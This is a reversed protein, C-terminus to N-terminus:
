CNYCVLDHLSALEHLARILPQRCSAEIWGSWQREKEEYRRQLLLCQCFAVFRERSKKRKAEIEKEFEAQLSHEISIFIILSYSLCYPVKRKAREEKLKEEFETNKARQERLKEEFEVDMQISEEVEYQVEQVAKERIRVKEIEQEM